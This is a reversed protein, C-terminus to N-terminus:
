DSRIENQVLADLIILVREIRVNMLRDVVEQGSIGRSLGLERVDASDQIRGLSCHVHHCSIEQLHVRLSIMPVTHGGREENVARVIDNIENLGNVLLCPVNIRRSLM